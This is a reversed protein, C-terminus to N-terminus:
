RVEELVKVITKKYGMLSIIYTLGFMGIYIGVLTAGLTYSISGAMVNTVIMALIQLIPIIIILLYLLSVELTLVKEINGNTYGILKLQKFSNKRNIGEILVKYIITIAMIVTIIVYSIIILIRVKETSDPSIYNSILLAVSILIYTIVYKSEEISTLLNSLAIVKIKDHQFYKKKVSKILHPISKKILGFISLMALGEAIPILETKDKISIPLLLCLLPILYLFWYFLPSIDFPILKRKQKNIIQQDKVLDVIERKYTYAIDAISIFVLEIFLIALTCAIGQSSFAMPKVIEGIASYAISNTLPLTAFGLLMGFLGGTLGIVINQFVLLMGVSFVSNGSILAISLTKTKGYIFYLNAVAVFLLAALLVIVAISAIADKSQVETFDSNFLLNFENFIIAISFVMTTFYFISQKMEKKLMILAFKIVGV